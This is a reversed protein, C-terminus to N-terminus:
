FGVGAVDLGHPAAIQGALHLHLFLGSKGAAAHGKLLLLETIHAGAATLGGLSHDVPANSVLCRNKQGSVFGGSRKQAGPTKSTM